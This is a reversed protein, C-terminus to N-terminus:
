YDAFCDAWLLYCKREPHSGGGVAGFWRSGQCLSWLTADVLRSHCLWCSQGVKYNKGGLFCDEPVGFSDSCLTRPQGHSQLDVVSSLNVGSLTKFNCIDWLCSRGVAVEVFFFQSRGTRVRVSESGNPPACVLSCGCEAYSTCLEGHRAINLELCNLSFVSSVSSYNLSAPCWATSDGPWFCIRLCSQM